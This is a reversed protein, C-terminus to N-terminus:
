ASAAAESNRGHFVVCELLANASEEPTDKPTTCKTIVEQLKTPNDHLGQEFLQKAEDTKLTNDANMWGIEKLVCMSLKGLNAPKTGKGKSERFAKMEDKNVGVAPDNLCKDSATKLKQVVQERDIAAGAALAVCIILAIVVKM